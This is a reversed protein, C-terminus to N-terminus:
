AEQPKDDAASTDGEAEAEAEERRRKGKLTQWLAIGAAAGIAVGAIWHNHGAVEAIHGTHAHASGALMLAIMSILTKM